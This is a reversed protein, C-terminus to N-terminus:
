MTTMNFMRAITAAAAGSLFAAVALGVVVVYINGGKDQFEFSMQLAILCGAICAIAAILPCVMVM